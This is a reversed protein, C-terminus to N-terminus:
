SNYYDTLKKKCRKNEFVLECDKCGLFMAVIKRHCFEDPKEFCLLVVDKGNSMKELDKMVNDSNLPGLKEEIYMALYRDRTAEEKMGQIMPYTPAVKKYVLGDYWSPPYQCIAIPTYKELDIKKLM